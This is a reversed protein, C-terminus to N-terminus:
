WRYTPTYTYTHTYTHTPYDNPDGTLITKDTDSNVEPGQYGWVKSYDLPQELETEKLDSNKAITAVIKDIARLEAILTIREKEKSPNMRTLQKVTNKHVRDVAYLFANNYLLSRFEAPYVKIDKLAKFYALQARVFKRYNTLRTQIRSYKYKCFIVINKLDIPKM